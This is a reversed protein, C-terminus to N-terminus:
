KGRRAKRAAKKAKAKAMADRWILGTLVAGLTTEYRTRKGHERLILLGNPYSEAIIRGSVKHMKVSVDNVRLVRFPKRNVKRKCSCDAAPTMNHACDENHPSHWDRVHGVSAAMSIGITPSM